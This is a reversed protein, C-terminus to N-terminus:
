RAGAGSRTTLPQCAAPTIRSSPGAATLRLCIELTEQAVDNWTRKMRAAIAAHDWNRDLAQRIANALAEPRRPPILIGNSRDVLERTGGVDTAVVPRGCALAEVVVNPYGESWSPLTLLNSARIWAAVAPPELGGAFHVRGALGTAVVARELEDRMPGDGVIALRCPPLGRSLSRFAHLLERLGKAAVLRGVYVVLRGAQPLGLQDRAERMTGPGFVGTDFGNVITHVREVAAGFDRVAAVRMAESVTLLGDAGRIARGTLWSQIGYRVHVDSGLAGILCPVGLSRAARLAAFGDPYVWYGIVIDPAFAAIRPTLYRSSTLGNLLRTAFRVSPYSFCEVDLGNSAYHEDIDGRLLSRWGLWGPQPYRNLQFYVRVDARRALAAATEFIYRGRTRDDPLPLMPTVLAIRLLRNPQLM